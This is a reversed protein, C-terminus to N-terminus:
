SFSTCIIPWTLRLYAFTLGLTNVLFEFWRRGIYLFFLFLLFDGSVIRVSLM